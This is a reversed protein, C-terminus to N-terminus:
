LSNQSERKKQRHKCDIAAFGVTDLEMSDLVLEKVKLKKFVDIIQRIVHISEDFRLAETVMVYLNIDPTYVIAKILDHILNALAKSTEGSHRSHGMAIHPASQTLKVSHLEKYHTASMQHSLHQSLVSGALSASNVNTSARIYTKLEHLDGDPTRNIIETISDDDLGYAKLLRHVLDDTKGSNTSISSLVNSIRAIKVQEDSPMERLEANQLSSADVGRLAECSRNRTSIGNVMHQKDYDKQSTTLEQSGFADDDEDDEVCNKQIDKQGKTLDRNKKQCVKNDTLLSSHTFLESQISLFM